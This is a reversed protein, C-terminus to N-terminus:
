LTPQEYARRPRKGAERNHHRCDLCYGRGQKQVDGVIVGGCGGWPPPDLFKRETQLRCWPPIARQYTVEALLADLDSTM